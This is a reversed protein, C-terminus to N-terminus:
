FFVIVPQKTSTNAKHNSISIISFGSQGVLSFKPRVLAFRDVLPRQAGTVGLLVSHDSVEVTLQWGAATRKFTERQANLASVSGKPVDRRRGDGGRGQLNMVEKLRM